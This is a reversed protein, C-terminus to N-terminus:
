SGTDYPQAPLLGNTMLGNPQLMQPPVSFAPIGYQADIEMANRPPPVMNCAALSCLAVSAAAVSVLMRSFSMALKGSCTGQNRAM